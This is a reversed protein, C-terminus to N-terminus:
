EGKNIQKEIISQIKGIDKIGRLYLYKNDKTNIDILTIWLFKRLNISLINSYFLNTNKFIASESTLDTGLVNMFDFSWQNLLRCNTLVNRKCSFLLNIFVVFFIGIISLLPYNNTSNIIIQIYKPYLLLPLIYWGITGGTLLPLVLNIVNSFDINYIIEEDDQLMNEIKKLAKRQAWFRFLVIFIYFIVASKLMLIFAIHRIEQEIM